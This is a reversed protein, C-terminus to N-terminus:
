IPKGIKGAMALALRETTAADLLKGVFGVQYIRGNLPFDATTRRGVAIPSDSFGSLGALGTMVRPDSRDVQVTVAGTAIDASGISVGRVAGEIGINKTAAVAASGAATFGYLGTGSAPVTLRWSPNGTGNQNIISASATGQNGWAAFATLATVGTLNCAPSLLVRNTAGTNEVYPVGTSDIGYLLGNGATGTFNLVGRRGKWHLIEQGPTTAPVTGATDTFVGYSADLWEGADGGAYVFALDTDELFMGTTGTTFGGQPAGARRTGNWVFRLKAGGNRTADPVYVRVTHARILPDTIDPRIAAHAPDGLYAIRLPTPVGKQSWAMLDRDCPLRYLAGGFGVSELNWDVHYAGPSGGFLSEDFFREVSGVTSPFVGSIDTAGNPHTPGITAACAKFSRSIENVVILNRPKYMGYQGSITFGVDGVHFGLIERNADNDTAIFEFIGEALLEEVFTGHLKAAEYKYSGRMIVAGKDLYHIACKLGGFKRLEVNVPRIRQVHFLTRASATYGLGGATLGHANTALRMAAIGGSGDVATVVFCALNGWNDSVQHPDVTVGAGLQGIYREAFLADGVVYGTGPTQITWGTVAGSGGVTLAVVADTEGSRNRYSGKWGGFTHLDDVFVPSNASLFNREAYSVEIKDFNLDGNDAWVGAGARYRFFPTNADSENPMANVITTGSYKAASHEGLFWGFNLFNVISRPQKADNMRGMKLGAACYNCDIELGSLDPGTTTSHPPNAFRGGISLVAEANPYEYGGSVPPGVTRDVVGLWEGPYLARLRFDRFVPTFATIFLPRSVHIWDGTGILAVARKRIDSVTGGAAAARSAALAFMAEVEATRDTAEGPVCGWHAATIDGAPVWGVTGGNTVICANATTAALVANLVRGSQLWSITLVGPPITAAEAAARSPFPFAPASKLGRMLDALAVAPLDPVTVVFPPYAARTVPHRPFVKYIGPVLDVTGTGAVDLVAKPALGTADDDPLVLGGGSSLYASAASFFVVEVGAADSLNLHQADIIVTCVM